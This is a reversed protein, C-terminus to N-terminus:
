GKGDENKFYSLLQQYQNHIKKFSLSNGTSKDPHYHHALTRWRQKIKQVNIPEQLNWQSLIHQLTNQDLEIRRCGAFFSDILQEVEDNSLDFNQWDLYYLRLPDETRISNTAPAYILQIHLSSISLYFGCSVLHDQLQFLANMILFNRKAIDSLEVTKADSNFELTELQIALEHIKWIKGDLLLPLLPQCLPNHTQYTNPKNNM